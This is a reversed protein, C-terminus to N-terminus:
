ENEDDSKGVDLGAKKCLHRQFKEFYYRRVDDDDVDAFEPIRELTSRYEEYLSDVQIAPNCHKIVHKLRDLQRRRDKRFAEVKSIIISRDVPMTQKPLSSPFLQSQLVTKINTPLNVDREFEEKSLSKLDDGYQQRLGAVTETVSKVFEQQMGNLHDWFLDLPTSGQQELMKLFEPRNRVMTHFERWSSRATLLGKEQCEKLLKKFAARNLRETRRQEDRLRYEAEQEERELDKIYGEFCILQDLLEMSALNSDGIMKPGIISQAFSWTIEVTIEKSHEKLLLMFKERMLNKLTKQRDAEERRMERMVDEFIDSRERSSQLAKYAEEGELLDCMEVYRSNTNLRTKILTRLEDRARLSRHQAEERETVRQQEVYQVYLAKREAM